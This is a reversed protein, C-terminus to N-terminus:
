TIILTLNFELDPCNSCEAFVFDQYTIRYTLTYTGVPINEIDLDFPNPDNIVITPEDPTVTWYGTNNPTPCDQADVLYSYLDLVEQTGQSRTVTTDDAVCLGLVNMDRVYVMIDNSTANDVHHTLSYFGPTVGSTDIIFNGGFPITNGATVNFLPNIANENFPGDPTSSNYGNYVWSGTDPADPDLSRLTVTCLM